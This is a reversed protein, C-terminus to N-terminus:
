ILTHDGAVSRPHLLLTSLYRYQCFNPGMLNWLFGRKEEAGLCKLVRSVGDDMM